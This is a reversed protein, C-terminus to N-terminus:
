PSNLENVMRIVSANLHNEFIKILEARAYNLAEQTFILEKEPSTAWVKHEAMAAGFGHGYRFSSQGVVPSELVVTLDDNICVIRGRLIVEKYTTDISVNITNYLEDFKKDKKKQATIVKDVHNQTWQRIAEKGHTVIDEPVCGEASYVRFAKARMRGKHTMFEIMANLIFVAKEKLFNLAWALVGKQYYKL